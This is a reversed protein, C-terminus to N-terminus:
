NTTLTLKQFSFKLYAKFCAKLILFCCISERAIVGSSAELYNFVALALGNNLNIMPIVVLEM